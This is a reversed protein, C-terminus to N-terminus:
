KRIKVGCVPCFKSLDRGMYKHCNPCTAFLIMSPICILLIGLCVALYITLFNKGFELIFFLVPLVIIIGFITVSTIIAYPLFKARQTSFEKTFDKM